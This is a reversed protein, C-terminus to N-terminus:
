GGGGGGEGGDLPPFSDSSSRGPRAGRGRATAESFRPSDPPGAHANMDHLEPPDPPCDPGPLLCCCQPLVVRGQELEIEDGLRVVAFLVARHPQASAYDLSLNEALFDLEQDHLPRDAHLVDLDFLSRDEGFDARVVVRVPTDSAPSWGQSQLRPSPPSIWRANHPHRPANVTLMVTRGPRFFSSVRGSTRLDLRQVRDRRDTAAIAELMTERRFDGYASSSAALAEVLTVYGDTGKEVATVAWEEMLYRFGDREDTRTLPFAGAPLAVLAQTGGEVALSFEDGEPQGACPAPSYPICAAAVLDGWMSDIEPVNQHYIVVGAYGRYRYAPQTCLRRPVYGRGPCGNQNDTCFLMQGQSFPGNKNYGAGANGAGGQWTDQEITQIFAHQDNADPSGEYVAQADIIVLVSSPHVMTNYTIRLIRFQGASAWGGLLLL